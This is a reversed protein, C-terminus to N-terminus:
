NEREVVGVGEKESVDGEFVGISVVPSRVTWLSDICLTENWQRDFAFM